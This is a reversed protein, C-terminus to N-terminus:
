RVITVSRTTAVERFADALAGENTSDVHFTVSNSTAAVENMLTRDADDGFSITFIPIGLSKARDAQERVYQVADVGMPRNALGDTLLLIQREASPRGNAELEDLALKLGDGINTAGDAYIADVITDLQALLSTFPNQLAALDSYTVVGVRDRGNSIKEVLRNFTKVSRKMASIKDQKNMSGSIDLVLMVDRRQFAAISGARLNSADGSRGDVSKGMAYGGYTQTTDVSVANTPNGNPTFVRTVFNWNGSQVLLKKPDVLNSKTANHKASEEAASRPNGGEALEQAAAIAAADVVNRLESKAYILKGSDLALAVVCAVLVGWVLLAIMLANGRRGPRYRTSPFVKERCQM